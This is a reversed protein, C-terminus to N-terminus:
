NRDELFRIRALIKDVGTRGETIREILEANQHKLEGLEQELSATDVGDRELAELRSEMERLRAGADQARAQVEARDEVLQEVAAELRSLAERETTDAM